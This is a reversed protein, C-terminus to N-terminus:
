ALARGSARRPGNDVLEVGRQLRRNAGLLQFFLDGGVAGLREEQIKRLAPSVEVLHLVIATLFAPMTKAARLADAMMTGRWPGLEILRVNEPAGM